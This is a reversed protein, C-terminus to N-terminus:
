RVKHIRRKGRLLATPSLAEPVLYSVREFLARCQRNDCNAVSPRNRGFTLRQPHQRGPAVPQHWFQVPPDYAVRERPHCAIWCRQLPEVVTGHIEGYLAYGVFSKQRIHERHQFFATNRRRFDAELNGLAAM